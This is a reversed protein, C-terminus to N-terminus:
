TMHNITISVNNIYGNRSTFVLNYSKIYLVDVSFFAATVSQMRAFLVQNFILKMKGRSWQAIVGELAPAELV